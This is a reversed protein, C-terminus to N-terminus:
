PMRTVSIHSMGFVSAISIGVVDCVQSAGAGSLQAFACFGNEDSYSPTAAYYFAAVPADCAAIAAEAKTATTTTLVAPARRM